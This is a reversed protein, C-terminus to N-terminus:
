SIYIYINVIIPEELFKLSAEMTDLFNNPVLVQLWSGQVVIPNEETVFTGLVTSAVFTIKDERTLAKFTFHRGHRIRGRFFLDM